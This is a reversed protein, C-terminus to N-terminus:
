TQVEEEENKTGEYRLNYQVFRCKFIGIKRILLHITNEEWYYVKMADATLKSKFQYWSAIHM